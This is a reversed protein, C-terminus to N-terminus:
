FCLPKNSQMVKDLEAKNKIPLDKGLMLAFRNMEACFEDCSLEPNDLADFMAQGTDKLQTIKSDFLQTIHKRYENAIIKATACHMEVIERRQKSLKTEKLVDFFSQYFTNTMAYGVMGGILSGLVPIPIAIQGIGAFMSASLMGSLSLGMEQALEAENIEGKAYRAILKGTSACISIITAPLNTKAVARLTNSSSQSCYAKLASGSFGTAYGMGASKATDKITESTAECLTKDGSYLAIANSVLSVSGGIAAGLKAGEIGAQHSTRTIEKFTEKEPNIRTRIADETSLGSDSIKKELAEYNEAQKLKLKALDTKGKAKLNANQERLGKSKERCIEKMSEVQETPVELKDVDLYRSLDNKGGGQGCAIKKLLDGQNSIFKTQSTIIKEDSIEILDITNHNKGYGAVDESRYTYSNRGEIIAKANRRNASRIEASYGAQQKINQEAYEPNIKSESIQRLSRDFVQGTEHDIGRYGKLYEAGAQGYRQTLEFQSSAIAIDISSNKNTKKKM